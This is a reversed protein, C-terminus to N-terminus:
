KETACIGAIYATVAPDACATCASSYQRRKKDKGVFACVPNYEMTCIEPRPDSCTQHLEAGIPRQYNGGGCGVLLLALLAPGTLRIM